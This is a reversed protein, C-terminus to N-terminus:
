RRRPSWTVVVRSIRFGFSCDGQSPAWHAVLQRSSLPHISHTSRWWHDGVRLISVIILMICKFEHFREIKCAGFCLTLRAQPHVQMPAM